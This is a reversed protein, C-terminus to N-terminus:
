IITFLGSLHDVNVAAFVHKDSSVLSLENCPVLYWTCRGVSAHALHM